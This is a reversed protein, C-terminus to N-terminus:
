QDSNIDQHITLNKKIRDRAKGSLGSAISERDSSKCGSRLIERIFLLQQQYRRCFRCMMLHFRIGMRRSLPLKRDMSDSVMETIKKCSFIWYRM